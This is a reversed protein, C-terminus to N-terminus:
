PDTPRSRYPFRIEEPALEWPTPTPIDYRLAEAELWAIQRKQWAPTPRSLEFVWTTLGFLGVILGLAFVLAGTPEELHPVFGMLLSAFGYPGSWRYFRAMRHYPHLGTGFRGRWQLVAVALLGSGALIWGATELLIESV